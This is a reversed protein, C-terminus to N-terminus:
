PHDLDAGYRNVSKGSGSEGVLGMTEGSDVSFSIGDVAKAVGDKTFFHTELDEVVLTPTDAM